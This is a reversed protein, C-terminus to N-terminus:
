WPTFNVPWQMPTMNQSGGSGVPSPSFNVPTVPDPIEIWEIAYVVRELTQLQQQQIAITQNQQKMSDDISKMVSMNQAQGDSVSSMLSESMYVWNDSMLKGISASHSLNVTESMLEQDKNSIRRKHANKNIYGSTFEMLKQAFEEWYREALSNYSFDNKFVERVFGERDWLSTRGETNDKYFNRLENRFDANRKLNSIDHKTWLYEDIKAIARTRDEGHLEGRKLAWYLKTIEGNIKSDAEMKATLEDAKKEFSREILMGIGTWVTYAIAGWVSLRLLAWGFSQWMLKGPWLPKLSGVFAQALLPWAWWMMQGIVNKTFIGGVIAQVPNKAAWNMLAQVTPDWAIKGIIKMTQYLLNGIGELGTVVSDFMRAGEESNAYHYFEEMMDVVRTLWPHMGEVNKRATNFAASAREAPLQVWTVLALWMDVIVWLAPSLDDATKLFTNRVWQRLQSLKTSFAMFVWDIKQQALDVDQANKLVDLIGGEWFIDSQWWGTLMDDWIRKENVNNGLANLLTNRAQESKLKMLLMTVQRLTGELWRAEGNADTFLGILEGESNLLNSLVDMDGEKFLNTISVDDLDRKLANKGQRVTAGLNNMMRTFSGVTFGSFRATMTKTTRSFLAMTEENSLGAQKAEKSFKVFQQSYEAMTGIGTDLTGAFLNMLYNMDEMNKPDLNFANAGYILADGMERAETDTAKAFEVIKRQVELMEDLEKNYQESGEAGWPMLWASFLQTMGDTVEEVTKGTRTSIDFLADKVRNKTSDLNAGLTANMLAFRETFTNLDAITKGAIIWWIAAGWLATKKTLNIVDWTTRKVATGVWGIARGFLGSMSETQWMTKLLGQSKLEAMDFDSALDKLARSAAWWKLIVTLELSKNM